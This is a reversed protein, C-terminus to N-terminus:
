FKLRELFHNLASYSLLPKGKIFASLVSKHDNYAGPDFVNAPQYNEIAHELSSGAPIKLESGSRQNKM